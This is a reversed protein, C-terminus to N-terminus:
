LGSPGFFGNQKSAGNKGILNTAHQQQTQHRLWGWAQEVTKDHKKCAAEFKHLVAQVVVLKARAATGQEVCLQMIIAGLEKPFENEKRPPM